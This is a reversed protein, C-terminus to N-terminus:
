RQENVYIKTRSQIMKATEEATKQDQFFPQIEENIIEYVSSDYRSFVTTNKILNRIATEEAETMAFVPIEWDKEGDYFWYFNKPTEKRGQEDTLGKNFESLLTYERDSYYSGGGANPYTVPNLNVEAPAEEDPMYEEFEPTREEELRKEFRAKSTPFGGWGHEEQYEDTLIYKVFDWAVDKYESKASIAFGNDATGFSSGMGPYGVFSPEGNLAYFTEGRFDSISYIEESMILQKGQNIRQVPSEWKYDDGRKKQTEEATPFSKVFNLLNIFEESDFKCEGTSWDIFRNLNTYIFSYVASERSYSDDLVTAGEPLSALANKMDEFTWSTGDGVVKKLGVATQITFSSYIEYLKGDKDRLTKFFDEVFADKGFDQEMYPTLDELIGKGAYKDVPLGDGVIFIDPIHGAIIETNLKTIGANQDSGTNFQSYETMRIRYESNKKNFDLVRQRVNYNMYMSAITIIKRENEPNYKTKELTVLEVSSKSYDENWSTNLSAFHEDDIPIINGIQTVDIDSDIWNIVMEAAGESGSKIGMLGSSTRYYALYDGTGPILDYASDPLKISDGLQKKELDIARLEVGEKGWGNAYVKGDNLCIIGNFSFDDGAKTEFLVTSFDPAYVTAKEWTGVYLNGSSDLTVYDAGSGEGDVYQAIQKTEVTKGNEDLVDLYYTNTNSSFDWKSQTQPNFNDPIDYTTVSEYRVVCLRGDNLAFISNISSYAEKDEEVVSADTWNFDPLMTMNKGDFGVKGIQTVYNAETYTEEVPNGNEDYYTYTVEHEGDRQRVTFFLADKGKTINAVYGDQMGEKITTFTPVYVFEITRSDDTKNKNCGAFLSLLMLMALVISVLRLSNKM